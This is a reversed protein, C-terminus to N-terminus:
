DFAADLEDGHDGGFGVLDGLFVGFLGDRALVDRFRQLFQSEPLIHSLNHSHRVAKLIILHYTTSAKRGMM